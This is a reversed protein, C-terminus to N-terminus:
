DTFYNLGLEYSKLGFGFVCGECVPSILSDHRFIERKTINSIHVEVVPTEVAAVADRIVVSTHSYGAANLVIGDWDEEQIKNVLEGELNSQFYSLNLSPFKAKLEVFYEEFSKAGYTEPERKGLLNLNPGNLILIQKARM